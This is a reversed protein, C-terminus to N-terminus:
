WEELNERVIVVSRSWRTDKLDRPHIEQTRGESGYERAV